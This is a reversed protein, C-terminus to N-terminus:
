KISSARLSTVPTGCEPCRDTSARLDYGCRQCHGPPPRLARRIRQVICAVPLVASLLALFWYPVMVILDSAGAPGSPVPRNAFDFGMRQYWPQFPLMDMMWQPAFSTAFHWHSEGRPFGTRRSYQVRGRLSTLTQQTQAGDYFVRDMRWYSRVWMALCAVALLTLVGAALTFVIRRMSQGQM